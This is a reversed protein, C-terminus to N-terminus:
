AMTVHCALAAHGALDYAFPGWGFQEFDILCCATAPSSSTALHIDAHILPRTHAPASAMRRIRRPTPSPPAVIASQAASRAPAAPRTLHSPRGRPPRRLLFGASFPHRRAPPLGGGPLAIVITEDPDALAAPHLGATAPRGDFGPSSAPWLPIRTSLPHRLAGATASPAPVALRLAPALFDLWALEDHLLRAAQESVPHHAPHLPARGAQVHYTLHRVDNLLDLRVPAFAM